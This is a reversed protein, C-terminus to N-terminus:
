RSRNDGALQSALVRLKESAGRAPAGHGSVALDLGDLDALAIVSRKVEAQDVNM